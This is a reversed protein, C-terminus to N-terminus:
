GAKRGCTPPYFIKNLSEKILKLPIGERLGAEGIDKILVFRNLKGRFKKDRYHAKLVKEPSIQKVSLPLGTNKLVREIRILSEKKLLGLRLSLDAAFIMGLAIAEGHNYRQYGGASEIAHGITHGFNLLTRIGREEKEDLSVIRAKIAASAAVIAELCTSDAALIDRYRTELFSFLQKDKILGYKIVEALGSKLQRLPLTKLFSVDSLVLRPHYFAGILNKAEKLDIATKGGISSDVQALLTTPVQIYAIGRKYVSAVFGSLDGIVGGGLAVIFVRKNKDYAALAKIVRWACAMSKSKESDAVLIFKVSFGGSRLLRSVTKGYRKKIASNTIICADQGINLKKLRLTLSKSANRGIIIHYSHKKLSVRIDKM